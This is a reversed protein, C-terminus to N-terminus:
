SVLTRKLDPDNEDYVHLETKVVSKDVPVWKYAANFNIAQSLKVFEGNSYTIYIYKDTTPHDTYLVESSQNNQDSIYGSKLDSTYDKYLKHKERLEYWTTDDYASYKLSEINTFNTFTIKRLYQDNENLADFTYNNSGVIDDLKILNDDLKLLGNIDNDFPNIVVVFEEGSVSLRQLHGCNYYKSNILERWTKGVQACYKIIRGNEGVIKYYIEDDALTETEHYVINKDIIDTPKVVYTSNDDNVYTILYPITDRRIHINDDKNVTIIGGIAEVNDENSLHDKWTPAFGDASLLYNYKKNGLTFKYTAAYESIYAIEKYIPGEQNSTLTQLLSILRINLVKNHTVDKTDIINGNDDRPITRNVPISLIYDSNTSYSKDGVVPYDPDRFRYNNHNDTVASLGLFNDPGCNIIIGNNCLINEPAATVASGGIYLASKQNFPHYLGEGPIDFVNTAVLKGSVNDNYYATYKLLQLIHDDGIECAQGPSSYITNKQPDVMVIGCNNLLKNLDDVSWSNKIFLNELVKESLNNPLYDAKEAFKHIQIVEGNSCTFSIPTQEYKSPKPYVNIFILNNITNDINKGEDRNTGFEKHCRIRNLSEINNWLRTRKNVLNYKYSHSINNLFKSTSPDFLEETDVINGVCNDYYQKWNDRVGNVNADTGPTEKIDSINFMKPLIHSFQVNKFYEKYKDSIRAVGVFRPKITQVNVSEGTPFNIYNDYSYTGPTTTSKDPTPFICGYSVDCNYVLQIKKLKSNELDNLIDNPIMINTPFAYLGSVTPTIPDKRDFSLCGDYEYYTGLTENTKKHYMNNIFPDPNDSVTYLLKQPTNNQKYITKELLTTGSEGKRTSRIVTENGSEDEITYKLHFSHRVSTFNPVFKMDNYKEYKDLYKLNEDANDKPNFLHNIIDKGLVPKYKAYVIPSIMSQGLEHSLSLAVSQININDGDTFEHEWIIIGERKDDSKDFNNSQQMNLHISNEGYENVSEVTFAKSPIGFINQEDKNKSIISNELINNINLADPLPTDTKANFYFNDIVPELKVTQLDKSPTHNDFYDIIEKSNPIYKQLLSNIDSDEIGTRWHATNGEDVDKDVYGTIINRPLAFDIVDRKSGSILLREQDGNHSWRYKFMFGLPVYLPTFVDMYRIEFKDGVNYYSCAFLAALSRLGYIYHLTRMLSKIVKARLAKTEKNNETTHVIKHAATNLASEIVGTTQAPIENCKNKFAIIFEESFKYLLNFNIGTPNTEFDRYDKESPWQLQKNCIVGNVHSGYDENYITSMFTFEDMRHPASDDITQNYMNDFMGNVLHKFWVPHKYFSIKQCSGNNKTYGAFTVCNSFYKDSSKKLFIEGNSQGHKYPYSGIPGFYAMMSYPDGEKYKANSPLYDGPTIILNNKDKIISDKVFEWQPRDKYLNLRLRYKNDDAFLTDQEFFRQMYHGIKFLGSQLAHLMDHESISGQEKLLYNLKKHYDNIMYFFSIIMFRRNEDDDTSKKVGSDTIKDALNGAGLYSGSALYDVVEIFYDKYKPIIRNVKDVDKFHKYKNEPRALYYKLGDFKEDLIGLSYQGNILETAHHDISVSNLNHAAKIINSDLTGQLKHGIVDVFHPNQNNQMRSTDNPNLYIGINKFLASKNVIKPKKKSDKDNAILEPGEFEDNLTDNALLDILKDNVTEDTVLVKSGSQHKSTANQSIILDKNVHSTKSSSHNSRATGYVNIDEGFVATKKAYVDENITLSDVNLKGINSPVSGTVNIPKKFETENSITIKDDKAVVVDKSENKIVINNTKINISNKSDINVLDNSNINISNWSNIDTVDSNVAFNNTNVVLRNSNSGYATGMAWIMEGNFLSSSPYTTQGTIRDYIPKCYHYIDGLINLDRSSLKEFTSTGINVVLDKVFKNPSISMLSQDADFSMNITNDGSLYGNGISLSDVAAHKFVSHQHGVNLYTNNKDIWRSYDPSINLFSKTNNFPDFVDSKSDYQNSAFIKHGNADDAFLSANDETIDGDKEIYLPSKFSVGKDVMNIDYHMNLPINAGDIYNFVNTPDGQSLLRGQNVLGVSSGLVAEIDTDLSNINSVPGFNLSIKESIEEDNKDMPINTWFTHASVYDDVKTVQTNTEGYHYPIYMMGARGDHRYDNYMMAEHMSFQSLIQSPNTPEEVIWTNDNIHAVCVLWECIKQTELNEDDISTSLSRSPKVRYALVTQDEDLCKNIIKINDENVEIWERTSTVTDNQRETYVHTIINRDYIEKGDADTRIAGIKVLNLSRVGMDGKPGQAILKTEKGNVKWCFENVDEDYYLTPFDQRVVFENNIFCVMCSTDYISSSEQITDYLIQNKFPSVDSFRADKFTYPLISKLILKSPDNQDEVLVATLNSISLLNDYWYIKVGDNVLVHKNSDEPASNPLFSNLIANYILDGLSGVSLTIYQGEVYYGVSRSDDEIPNDNMKEDMITEGRLEKNSFGPDYCFRLDKVIVSEGKAGRIYEEEFIKKFNSDISSFRDNIHSGINTDDYNVVNIPKLIDKLNKLNDTSM